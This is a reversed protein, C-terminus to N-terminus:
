ELDDLHWISNYTLVETQGQSFHLVNICCNSQRLKRAHRLEIGVHEALYVRNVLNHAVVAINQGAHKVLLRDITPRVRHLLDGYSEGGPHPQAVPDAFFAAYGAPDEAQVAEWSRGEWLGVSCERINPEIQVTLGHHDAIATATEQARRLSSAYVASLRCRSLFRGVARSQQQGLATLPGDIECGQLTFPRSENPATSGHRVLFLRTTEPPPPQMLRSATM